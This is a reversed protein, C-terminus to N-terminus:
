SKKTKRLRSSSIMCGNAASFVKQFVRIVKGASFGWTITIQCHDGGRFTCPNEEVKAPPYGWLTPVASYIGRNYDCVDHSSKVGSRWHWRLLARGPANELLQITKTTNLKANLQNMRMLIRRPSSFLTLFLKAVYSFEKHTISEFGIDFPTRPNGTIQKAKEFLKVVISSPIWNNEDSLFDEPRSMTSFPPPLDSLLDALRDPYHRRIYEIIAHSNLSSVDNPENPM